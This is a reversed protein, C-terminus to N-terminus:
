KRAKSKKKTKKSGYNKKCEKHVFENIEDVMESHFIGLSDELKATTWILSTLVSPGDIDLLRIWVKYVKGNKFKLKPALKARLPKVGDSTEVDCNVTHAPVRITYKPKTLAGIIHARKLRVAVRCQADGFSWGIKKKKAGKKIKKEGWTKGVACRLVGKRPKKTIITECLRKECQELLKKEEKTPELALAPSALHTALLASVLVTCPLPFIAIPMLPDTTTMRASTTQTDRARHDYM